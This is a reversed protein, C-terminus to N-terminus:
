WGEKFHPADASLYRNDGLPRSVRYGPRPHLSRPAYCHTCIWFRWGRRQFPHADVQTSRPDYFPVAPGTVVRGKAESQRLLLHRWHRDLRAAV